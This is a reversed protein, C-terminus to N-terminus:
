EYHTVETIFFNAGYLGGAISALEHTAHTSVVQNFTADDGGEPDPFEVTLVFVRM